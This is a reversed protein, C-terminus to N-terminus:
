CIHIQTQRDNHRFEYKAEHTDVPDSEQSKEMENIAKCAYRSSVWIFLMFSFTYIKVHVWISNMLKKIM